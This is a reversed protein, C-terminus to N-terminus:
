ISFLAKKILEVPIKLAELNRQGKHKSYDTYFVTVPVEAVRFKNKSIQYIIDSPHAWGNHTIEIQNLASRSFARFGNHTDTLKIDAFIRTFLLGLRLILCKVFPMNIAKGMFRSGLVVDAKNLIIPKVIKSIDTPEFQGDADYTVVIDCDLRKAYDFGTQLAAGQGLNVLHRLVVTKKNKAELFTRDTSGDDVVVIKDCFRAVESLVKRITAEENLAAIVIWTQKKKM